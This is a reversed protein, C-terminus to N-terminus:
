QTRELTGIDKQLQLLTWCRNCYLQVCGGPRVSYFHTITERMRVNGLIHNAKNFVLARQQSMNLRADATIGLDKGAPSSRVWCSGLGYWPLPKKQGM